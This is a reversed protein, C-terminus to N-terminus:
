HTFYIKLPEGIKNINLLFKSINLVLKSINFM